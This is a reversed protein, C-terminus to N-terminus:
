LGLKAKVQPTLDIADPGTYPVPTSSIDLIYTFGGEAGVAKIAKNIKELIPANLEKEKAAIDADAKNLFRQIKHDSEQIEQMRREKITAPTAADVALAQYDAFKKNFEEQVTNYEIQYQKSFAELQAQAQAKEPMANYIAKIDVHGIKATQAMLCLPAAILLAIFAKKM